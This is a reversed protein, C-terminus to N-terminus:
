SIMDMGHDSEVEGAMEPYVTTTLGTAVVLVQVTGSEVRNDVTTGWIIRTNKGVRKRIMDSANSTEELQLDKGGIVNVIVGSAKSMDLQLFPSALAKQVADSVRTGPEGMGQGMGIMALGTDKMITRLDNFDLNILGPKTILDSIGTIARVMVEDAFRFAKEMPMDPVLEVLKDNPILIVCDSARILKRLGWMANKLRVSGESTFPMTVVSITLSGGEKARSAIYYASGTGTGGGLGAAVFAIDVSSTYKVIEQDSEKAAQEGVKPDAGSGLGRTLNKGLLVKHNAKIKLLHAADTNCAILSAGVIGEKMLRNITNSGAGGAGFVRIKVKLKDLYEQLEEESTGIKEEEEEFDSMSPTVM